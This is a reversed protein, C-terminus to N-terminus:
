IFVFGETLNVDEDSHFETMQKLKSNRQQKQKLEARGGTYDYKSSPEPDRGQQVFHCITEKITQCGIARLQHM